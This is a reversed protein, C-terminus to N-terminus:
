TPSFLLLLRPVDSQADFAKAFERFNVRSLVLLSEQGKPVPGPGWLYAVALVVLVAAAIGVARSKSM